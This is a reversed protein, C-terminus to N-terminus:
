DLLNNKSSEIKLFQYLKRFALASDEGSTFVELVTCKLRDDLLSPLADLFEDNNSASLYNINFAKCLNSASAKQGAEFYPLQNTTSPGPIIRFINGGGNNVLIVRLNEPVHTNWFANSDYFFSMDGSILLTLKDSVLAAGATTSTSGDIGSTGRNVYYTIMPHKEFLDSYRVPTSNALHLNIPKKISKLLLKVVMLDSWTISKLYSESISKTNWFKQRWLELYGPQKTVAINTLFLFAENASIDIKRTLCRYTDVVHPNLDIDWHYKPKFTRFYQKTSKSVVPSGITILLDPTFSERESETLSSIMLDPITFIAEGELNANSAGLVPVNKKKSFESIVRNLEHSPNQVGSVVLIFECQNWEEILEKQQIEDLVPISNEVVKQSEKSYETEVINYLPENFPINIHVPGPPIGLASQFAEDLLKEVQVQNNEDELLPLSCSYRIFNRYIDAQRITQGDEQDIWEPPRDATIVILSIEQYYAEAIAPAYNLVATGSTCVLAVPQNLQRAMGLAYFAASREDPITYCKFYPHSDFSIILPANRSGPSIIVNKVENQYCWKLVLQVSLKDSSLYKM